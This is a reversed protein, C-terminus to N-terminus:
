VESTQKKAAQERKARDRAAAREAAAQQRVRGTAYKALCPWACFTMQGRGGIPLSLVIWRTGTVSYSQYDPEALTVTLEQRCEDCRATLSIHPM